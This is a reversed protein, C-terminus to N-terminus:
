PKKNKFYECRHPVGAILIVESVNIRFKSTNEGDRIPKILDWRIWNEVTKRGYVSKLKQISVFAPAEGKQVLTEHVAVSIENTRNEIAQRIKSIEEAMSFKDNM